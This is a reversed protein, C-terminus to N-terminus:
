IDRVSNLAVNSYKVKKRDPWSFIRCNPISHWAPALPQFQYPKPDNAYLLEKLRLFFGKLKVTNGDPGASIEQDVFLTTITTLSLQSQMLVWNYIIGDAAISYFNLEGDQMDVGWKVEWVINSHKGDTGRSVYMPLTSNTELNYVAVNGDFM